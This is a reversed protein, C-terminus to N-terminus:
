PMGRTRISEAREIGAMRANWRDHKTLEPGRKVAQHTQGDIAGRAAMLTQVLPHERSNVRAAQAVPITSLVDRAAKVTVGAAALRVAAAPHKKAEPLALIAAALAQHDVTQM